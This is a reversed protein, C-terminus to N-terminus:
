EAYRVQLRPQWRSCYHPQEAQQFRVPTYRYRRLMALLAYAYYVTVYEEIGDRLGAM